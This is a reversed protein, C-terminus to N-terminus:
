FVVARGLGQREKRGKIESEMDYPLRCVNIVRLRVSLAPGLPTRRMLFLELSSGNLNKQSILFELM